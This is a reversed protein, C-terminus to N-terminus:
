ADDKKLLEEIECAVEESSKGDTSVRADAEDFYKVREAYLREIREKIAKEPDDSNKAVMQLLPRMHSGQLREYINEVSTELFVLFGYTKVYELVQASQITGGGLSIVHPPRQMAMRMVDNEMFRFRHEGMQAFIEPISKNTQGEVVEDTDTFNYKLKNALIEGVETKGSGSFGCLFIIEPMETAM